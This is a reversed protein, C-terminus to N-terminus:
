NQLKFLLGRPRREKEIWLFFRDDANLFLSLSLSLFSPFIRSFSYHSLFIFHSLSLPSFLSFHFLLCACTSAEKKYRATNGKELVLYVFFFFIIDEKGIGSSSSSSSSEFCFSKGALFFRKKNVFSRLLSELSSENAPTSTM